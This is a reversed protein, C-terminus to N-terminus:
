NKGFITVVHENAAQFWKGKEDYLTWSFYKGHFYNM